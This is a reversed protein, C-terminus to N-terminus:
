HPASGLRRRTRRPCCRRSSHAIPPLPPVTTTSGVCRAASCGASKTDVVPVRARFAFAAVARATYEGVGPLRRLAEVDGPVEGDHADVIRRAALHLRLARRPYGLRGWARVVDGVDAAALGAPSPWRHLWAQYVPLVRSVPTQQLMVESVLVGWPEADPRRWPLDRGHAAFFGALQVPDLVSEPLPGLSAGVPEEKAARSAAANSTLPV